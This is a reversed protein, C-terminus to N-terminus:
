ERESWRVMSRVNVLLYVAFEGCLSSGEASGPGAETLAIARETWKRSRYANAVGSAGGSNGPEAPM